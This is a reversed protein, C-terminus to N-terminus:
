SSLFINAKTAVALAFDVPTAEILPIWRNSRVQLAPGRARHIPIFKVRRFRTSPFASLFSIFIIHWTALLHVMAINRWVIVNRGHQCRAIVVTPHIILRVAVILFLVDDLYRLRGTNGPYTDRSHIFFFTLMVFLFFSSIKSCVLIMSFSSVGWLSLLNTSTTNREQCTFKERRWTIYQDTLQTQHKHFSASFCSSWVHRGWISQCSSSLPASTKTFRMTWLYSERKM